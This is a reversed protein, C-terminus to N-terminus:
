NTGKTSSHIREDWPLGTADFTPAQADTVVQQFAGAPPEPTPDAVPQEAVSNPNLSAHDLIRLVARAISIEEPTPKFPLQITIMAPEKILNNLWRRIVAIM